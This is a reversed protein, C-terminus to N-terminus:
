NISSCSVQLCCPGHRVRLHHLSRVRSWAIISPWSRAFVVFASCFLVDCNRSPVQKLTFYNVPFVSAEIMGETNELKLGKDLMYKMAYTSLDKAEVKAGALESYKDM